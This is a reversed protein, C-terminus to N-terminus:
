SRKAQYDTIEIHNEECKIDLAHVIKVVMSKKQEVTDPIGDIEINQKRSNQQNFNKQTFTEERLKTM